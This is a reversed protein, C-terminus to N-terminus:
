PFTSTSSTNWKERQAAASTWAAPPSIRASWSSPPAKTSIETSSDKMSAQRGEVTMDGNYMVVPLEAEQLAYEVAQCSAMTNCFVMTKKAGRFDGSVIQEVVAMKDVNGPCDIFRHKLNPASKHLSPTDIIQLDPLEERMERIVKESM